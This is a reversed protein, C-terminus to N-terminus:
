ICQDNEGEPTADQILREIIQRRYGDLDFPQTPEKGNFRCEISHLSFLGCSHNDTQDVRINEHIQKISFARILTDAIAQFNLDNKHVASEKHDKISLGKPDFFHLAEAELDIYWTVIHDGLHRTLIVPIAIENCDSFEGIVLSKVIDAIAQTTDIPEAFPPLCPILNIFIHKDSHTANLHNAYHTYAQAGLSIDKNLHYISQTRSDNQPVDVMMRELQELPFITRDKALITKFAYTSSSVASQIVRKWSRDLLKPPSAPDLPHSNFQEAVLNTVETAETPKSKDPLPSPPPSPVVEWLHEQHLNPPAALPTGLVSDRCKQFSGNKSKGPM